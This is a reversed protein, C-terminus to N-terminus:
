KLLERTMLYKDLEKSDTIFYKPNAVMWALKKISWNRDLCIDQMGLTKSFISSWYIEGLEDRYYALNSENNVSKAIAVLTLISPRRM